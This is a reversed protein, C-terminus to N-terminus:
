RDPDEEETELSEITLVSALDAEDKGEMWNFNDMVIEIDAYLPNHTKLWILARLVKERRVTFAKEIHEGDATVQTRIVKVLVVEEPLKPFVKCIGSIDQVFSVVHGRSGLTGNKIHIVPIYPSVRQILMKEAMTLDKLAPPLNYHLKGSLDYWLPLAKNEESYLHCGNKESHCYRCLGDKGVIMNIRRKRCCKCFSTKINFMRSEFRYAEEIFRKQKPDTTNFCEVNACPLSMFFGEKIMDLTDAM